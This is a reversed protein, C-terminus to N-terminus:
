QPPVWSSGPICHLFLSSVPFSYGWGRKETRSSGETPWGVQFAALPLVLSIYDLFDAEQACISFLTPPPSASCHCTCISFLGSLHSPWDKLM